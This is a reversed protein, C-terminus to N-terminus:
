LQYRFGCPLAHRTTVSSTPLPLSATWRRSVSSLRMCRPWSRHNAVSFHTESPLYNAPCFLLGNIYCTRQTLREKEQGDNTTLECAPLANRACSIRIRPKLSRVRDGGSGIGRHSRRPLRLGPPPGVRRRRNRRRCSRASHTSGRNRVRSFSVSFGSSSGGTPWTRMRISAQPTHWDSEAVTSPRM